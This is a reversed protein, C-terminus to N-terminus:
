NLSNIILDSVMKLLFYNFITKRIKKIKLSFNERARERTLLWRRLPNSPPPPTLSVVLSEVKVPSRSEYYHGILFTPNWSQLPDWGFHITSRSSNYGWPRLVRGETPNPFTAPSKQLHNIATASPKHRLKADYTCPRSPDTAVGLCRPLSSLSHTPGMHRNPTAYVDKM